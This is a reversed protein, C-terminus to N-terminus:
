DILEDWRIIIIIKGSKLGLTARLKLIRQQDEALKQNQQALLNQVYLSSLYFAPSLNPPLLWPIQKVSDVIKDTIFNFIYYISKLKCLEHSQHSLLRMM